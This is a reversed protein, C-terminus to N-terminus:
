LSGPSYMMASAEEPLKDSLWDTREVSVSPMSFGSVPSISVKILAGLINLAAWRTPLAIRETCFM